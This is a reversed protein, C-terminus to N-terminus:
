NRQFLNPAAKGVDGKWSRYMKVRILAKLDLPEMLKQVVKHNIRLGQRKLWVTIRRYDYRGKHYWTSRPLKAARLLDRLSHEHRLESIKM